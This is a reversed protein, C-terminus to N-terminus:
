EVVDILERLAAVHEHLARRGVDTLGVWTTRRGEHTGKRSRVYGANVLASVHKSLVSDSVELAERLTSFEAEAVATLTTVLQLRAPAHILPDLDPM